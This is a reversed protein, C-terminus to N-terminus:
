IYNVGRRLIVREGRRRWLLVTGFLIVAALAIVGNLIFVAQMNVFDSLRGGV